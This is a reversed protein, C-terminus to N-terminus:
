LIQSKVYKNKQAPDQFEYINKLPSLQFLGKEWHYWDEYIGYEILDWDYFISGISRLQDFANFAASPSNLISIPEKINTFAAQELFVRTSLYAAFEAGWDDEDDLAANIILFLALSTATASLDVAAKLLNRKQYPQLYEWFAKTYTEKQRAHSFYKRVVGGVSRYFGEEYLGTDYNIGGKKLRETWGQVMWGRHMLLLTGIMTSNWAGKDYKGVNGEIYKSRSQIIGHVTAELQPTVYKSYEPKITVKGNSYDYANYLTDKEYKKWETDIDLNPNDLKFQEKTVYKGNIFRHNDYVALMYMTRAQLGFAEYSGYWFDDATFRNLPNKFNLRKFIKNIDGEGGSYRLLGSIKSVKNTKLFDATINHADKGYQLSARRLSERTIYNGAVSDVYMDINSKIYGSLHTIPQLFLNKKRLYEIITYVAKAPKYVKGNYNVDWKQNTEGYVFRNMLEELAKSENSSGPAMPIGEKYQKESKYVTREALAKQILLLDPLIRTLGGYNEAMETYHAYMSTIDPSLEKINSLKKTYYIPLLKHQTFLPTKLTRGSTDGWGTDDEVIKFGEMSRKPITGLKKSLSDNTNALYQLMDSRMQPMLYRNEQTRFSPPLKAKASLHAKKVYEYYARVTPDLALIKDYNPNRAPKPHWMGNIKMRHKDSFAKFESKYIVQENAALETINIENFSKLKFDEERLNNIAAVVKSKYDDYAQNYEGWLFESILFGNPEGNADKEYFISMDKFGKAAMERQLQYLETGVKYAQKDSVMHVDQVLKMVMKLVEDSVARLPMVNAQVWGISGVKSELLEDPDFKVKKGDPGVYEISLEEVLNRVRKKYMRNVSDEITTFNTMLETMRETPSLGSDTSPTNKFVRLDVEDNVEKVLDQLMVKYMAITYIINQLQESSLIVNNDEADILMQQIPILENRELVEILTLLADKIQESDLKDQIIEAQNRYASAMEKSNVANKISTQELIKARDKLRTINNQIMRRLKKNTDLEFYVDTSVIENDLVVTGDLIGKALEDFVKDINRELQGNKATKFVGKFWNIVRDLLSSHQGQYREYLKKALVKGMAEKMLRSENNNYVQGYEKVVEAYEPTSKIVKSMAQYLPHNNGLMEIIFHAAEEPLTLADAKGQAVLIMKNLMDAAAIGDVGFRQKFDNIQKVTIGYKALFEKLYNDLEASAKGYESNSLQYEFNDRANRADEMTPYLENNFWFENGNVVYIGDVNAVRDVYTNVTQKVITSSGEVDKTTTEAINETKGNPQFKDSPYTNIILEYDTRIIGSEDTYSRLPKAYHKTNNSLNYNKIRISMMAGDRNNVGVAKFGVGNVVNEVEIVDEPTNNKWAIFMDIARQEDGKTLKLLKGWASSKRNPCINSM